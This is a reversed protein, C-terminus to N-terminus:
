LGTLQGAYVVPGTPLKTPSGGQPEQSVLLKTGEALPLILSARGSDPMLGMSVPVTAGSRLAWLELSRGQPVATDGVAVVTARGDAGVRVLYTAGASGSSALAAFQEAGKMPATYLMLALSAAVATM